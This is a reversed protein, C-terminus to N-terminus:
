NGASRAAAEERAVEAARNPDAIWSQCFEGLEQLAPSGHASRDAEALLREYKQWVAGGFLQL